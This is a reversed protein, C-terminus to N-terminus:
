IVEVEDVILLAKCIVPIDPTLIFTLTCKHNRNRIAWHQAVTCVYTFLYIITNNKNCVPTFKNKHAVALPHHAHTHHTHPPSETHPATHLLPAPCPYAPHAGSAPAAICALTCVSRLEHRRGGSSVNCTTSGFDLFASTPESSTLSLM